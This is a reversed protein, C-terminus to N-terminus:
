ETIKIGMQPIGSGSTDSWMIDGVALRIRTMNNELCQLVAGPKYQDVRRFDVKWPEGRLLSYLVTGKGVHHRLEMQLSVEADNSLSRSM